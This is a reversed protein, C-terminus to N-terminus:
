EGTGKYISDYHEALETTYVAASMVDCNFLNSYCSPEEFV